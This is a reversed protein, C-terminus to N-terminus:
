RIYVHNVPLRQIPLQIVNICQVQRQRQRRRKIKRIRNNIYKRVNETNMLCLLMSIGQGFSVFMSCIRQTDKPVKIHIFQSLAFFVLFPLGMIFLAIVPIIIRRHIRFERKQRQQDVINQPLVTPLSHKRIYMVIRIYIGIMLALPFFYIWIGLYVSTYIDDISVQCVRSDLSFQIRNNMLLLICKSRLYIRQISITMFLRYLAHLCFTHYLLGFTMNVLFCRFRCLPDPETASLQYWAQCAYVVNLIFGAVISNLVLITTTTRCQRCHM